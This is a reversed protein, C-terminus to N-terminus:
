GLAFSLCVEGRNPLAQMLTEMKMRTLPRPGQAPIVSNNEQDLKWHRNACVKEAHLRLSRSFWSVDLKQVATNAECVLVSAPASHKAPSLQGARCGARCQQLQHHIQSNM